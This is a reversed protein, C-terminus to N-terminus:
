CNNFSINQRNHFNLFYEDITFGEFDKGFIADIEAQIVEQSTETFYKDLLELAKLQEPTFMTECYIKLLKM